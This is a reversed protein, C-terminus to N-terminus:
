DRPSQQTLKARRAEFEEETIEGRAYALRLEELASDTAASGRGVAGRYVVYGIGVLVVLWVLSMGVGWIPSGGVGGMTGSWMGFIPVALVMMLVPALVIAALVLLVIKITSDANNQTAM